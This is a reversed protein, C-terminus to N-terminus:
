NDVVEQEIPQKRKKARSKPGWNMGKHEEFRVLKVKRSKPNSDPHQSFDIATVQEANLIKRSPGQEPLKDHNVNTKKSWARMMDWIVSSPANTKLANPCCHTGSTKYGANLLASTADILSPTSCKVSSSIKDLKYYFPADIEESILTSMGLMRDRTAYLEKSREEELHKIMQAVFDKNHIPAIWAPGHIHVVGGCHQCNYNISELRSYTYKASGKPLPTMQGFSATNFSPCLACQYVTATNSAAYRSGEASDEIKVFLRVYFDISCSMLPVVIKKYRSAASQLSHLVIRLAMEHCYDSKLGVGGYKAFCTDPRQGCLVGLDTCTVCLLGGDEICQIAADMFPAATGYPDLDVVHFRKSPGRHRYMVDCADGQNPKVIDSVDNYEANRQISEVAEESLDNALISNVLNPMEKAYRVSRLGSASLAELINFKVAEPNSKDQGTHFAVRKRFRSTTMSAWTKIAAISIDRNFQQVPNYFVEDEMPFLIKAQGEELIRFEQNKFYETASTFSM